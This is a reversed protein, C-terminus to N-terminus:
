ARLAGATAPTADLLPVNIDITTGRSPVSRISVQGGLLGIREQMGEFGIHASRALDPSGADPLSFGRGWDRVVLRVHQGRRRLTVQVRAPGAHKRINSFAEQVVRYLATEVPAPLRVGGLREDFSVPWGDAELTEAEVLVARALGFDDLVTPRLGRILNRAERVTRQALDLGRQLADREDSVERPYRSALVQLHQHTATAVQAVGDHLEYALRRREEEQSALLRRVLDELRREREALEQYLRARELAAGSQRALLRMFLRETEAFAHDRRWTLSLAGAVRGNVVVPLAATGRNGRARTRGAEPYRAKFEALSEIWVPEGTRVAEATPVDTDISFQSWKQYQSRSGHYGVLRITHGSPDLVALTGTSAGLVGVGQQVIVAAVRETSLAGSLSDAVAQLSLLQELTHEATGRAERERALLGAHQEEALRQETVDRSVIVIGRVNPDDLLNTTTSQMTRWTGDKHRARVESQVRRTRGSLMDEFIRTMRPVDDPHVLEAAHRQERESRDFGLTRYISPSEYVVTGHADLIVITDYTNEAIVRFLEDGLVFPVRAAEAVM